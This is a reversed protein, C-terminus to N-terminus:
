ATFHVRVPNQSNLRAAEEQLRLQYQQLFFRSVTSAGGIQHMNAAFGAEASQGAVRPSDLVASLRWMAGLRIVDECSAPLGTTSFLDTEAAFTTPIKTYLVQVTRGSPIYDWLSISSGTPFTTTNAANDVSWRRVNSWEQTPGVNRWKVDLANMAGSPLPFTTQAGNTTLTTATLGYLDPYVAQITENLAQFVSARFFLPSAVVRAPATHSTATTSRYGRVVTATNGATDVSEVFIIESEIEALGRSLQSADQVSITTASANINATLPTSQDQQVSYGSLQLLTWDIMQAATSM